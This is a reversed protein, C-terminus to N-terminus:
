TWPQKSRAEYGILVPIRSGQVVFFGGEKVETGIRLLFSVKLSAKHIRSPGFRFNDDVHEEKIVKFREKVRSYEQEGM